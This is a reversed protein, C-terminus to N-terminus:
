RFTLRATEREGQAFGARAALTAGMATRSDPYGSGGSRYGRCITSATPAPSPSVNDSRIAAPLGRQKVPAEKTSELAEALLLFRSAQDTVTLSEGKFDACWLDNPRAADSLPTGEAMFRRRQRAHKVLGQRDLVAHVTSTTLATLNDARDCEQRAPGSRYLPHLARARDTDQSRHDIGHRM